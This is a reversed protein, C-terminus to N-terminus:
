KVFPDFIACEKGAWMPDMSLDVEMVHPQVAHIGQPWKTIIAGHNYVHSGATKCLIVNGETCWLSRAMQAEAVKGAHRLMERMYREDKTHAWWDTSFLPINEPAILGTDRLVCYLLTACDCGIGKLQGRMVYPTLLWTRAEAILEERTM